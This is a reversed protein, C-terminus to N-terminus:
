EGKSGAAKAAAKAAEMAKLKEEMTLTGAPESSKAPAPAAESSPKAPPAPEKGCGSLIAAMVAASLLLSKM